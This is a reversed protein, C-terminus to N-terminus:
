ISETVETTELPLKFIGNTIFYYNETKFDIPTPLSYLYSLSLVSTVLFPLFVIANTDVTIQSRQDKKEM